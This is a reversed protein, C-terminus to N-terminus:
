IIIRTWYMTNRFSIGSEYHIVRTGNLKVDSINNVLSLVHLIEESKNAIADTGDNSDIRPDDDPCATPSQTPSLSPVSPVNTPSNSPSISPSTTPATSPPMTPRKTPKLTPRSTPSAYTNVWLNRITGNYADGAGWGWVTTINRPTSPYGNVTYNLGTYNAFIYTGDIIILTNTLSFKSYLNHWGGDMIISNASENMQEIYTTITNYRMEYHLGGNEIYILPYRDEIAFIHCWRTPCSYTTSLKVDFSLEVTHNISILGLKKNIEIQIPGSNNYSTMINTPNTTPVTPYATPEASPNDSNCIFPITYSCSLDNWFGSAYMEVCDENNGLSNPEIGIVSEWNQYDYFSGDDWTWNTANSWREHEIDNLGIWATTNYLDMAEINEEENHVSALTTNYESRCYNQAAFWSLPEHVFIYNESYITYFDAESITSSPFGSSNMTCMFPASYLIGNEWFSHTFANPSDIDFHAIQKSPGCDGPYENDVCLNVTHISNPGCITDNLIWEFNRTRGYGDGSTNSDVCWSDIGYFNGDSTNVYISSIIVANWTDDNTIMIKYENCPNTNNAISTWSAKSADCSYLTNIDPQYFTCQYISKAFWLTVNIDNSTWSSNHNATQISFSQVQDNSMPSPIPDNCLINFIKPTSTTIISPDCSVDWWVGSDKKIQVCDEDDTLSNDPANDVNNPEGDDWNTYNFETGDVWVWGITGNSDRENNIDNLGIFCDYSSANCVTQANANEQISHISALTSGINACLNQATQFTTISNVTILHYSNSLKLILLLVFIPRAIM